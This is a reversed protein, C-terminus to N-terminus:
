PRDGLFQELRELGEVMNSRGFGIRFGDLGEQFLTGPLLLVGASNVCTGASTTWRDAWTGPFPSPAPRPDAGRSFTRTVRSFVTSATWTGAFSGSTGGSSPMARHRLALTALFEGPASNCITTYDKFAALDALLPGNRTAAWGIRLGALGYTKSMVGISVARHNIDAFAPLRRAPDHELGRYVEDSLVVFGHADSLRSLETLFGPRPLFGTPNHPFNVVVVRTRDTLLDKLRDLELARSGDALGQWPSVRAGISRRWRGWPNTTPRTCWWM